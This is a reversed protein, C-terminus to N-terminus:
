KITHQNKLIIKAKCMFVGLCDCKLLSLLLLSPSLLWLYGLLLLSFLNWVNYQWLPNLPFPKSPVFMSAHVLLYNPCQTQEDWREKKDVEIWSTKNFNEYLFNSKDDISSHALLAVIIIIIIEVSAVVSYLAM